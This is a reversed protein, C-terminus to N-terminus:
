FACLPREDASSGYNLRQGAETIYIKTISEQISLGQRTKISKLLKDEPKTM